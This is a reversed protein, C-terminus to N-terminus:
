PAIGWGVSLAQSSDFTSLIAWPTGDGGVKTVLVHANEVDEGGGVVDALFATQGRALPVPISTLRTGNSAFVEVHVAADGAGTEALVLNSRAGSSSHAGGPFSLGTRDLKRIASRHLAPLVATQSPRARNVTRARVTPALGTGAFRLGYATFGAPLGPLESARLTVTGNAPVTFTAASSPCATGAPCSLGEITGALPEARANGVDFETDWTGVVGGLVILPDGIATS